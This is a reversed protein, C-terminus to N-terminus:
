SIDSQEMAYEADEQGQIILEKITDMSFDADEYIFHRGPRENRQIHVIKDVMLAQKNHIISSYKEEIENLKSKSGTLPFKLSKKVSFVAFPFTLGVPSCNLGSPFVNYTTPTPSLSTLVM